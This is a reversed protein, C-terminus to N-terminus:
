KNREYWPRPAADLRRFYGRLVLTILATCILAGLLLSGGLALLNLLHEIRGIPDPDPRM